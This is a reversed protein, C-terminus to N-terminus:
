AAGTWSVLHDAWRELDELSGENKLLYDFAWGDLDRESAHSNPPEIGPRLIRVVVGDNKKIADAENRFRVDTLVLNDAQTYGKLAIDIWFDSGFIERGAETGLRQLFRRVEPVSKARDWGVSDVAESLRVPRVNSGYSGYHDIIPDIALAMKRMPDAFAVRTYGHREVLLKGVTDKGSRAYGSLGIMM